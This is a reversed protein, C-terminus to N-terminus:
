KHNQSRLFNEFERQSILWTGKPKSGKLSGETLYRRVTKESWGTKATIDGVQLYTDSSEPQPKEVPPSDENRYGVPSEQLQPEPKPLPIKKEQVIRLWSQIPPKADFYTCYITQETLNLSVVDSLAHQFELFAKVLCVRLLHLAYGNCISETDGPSIGPKPPFGTLCHNHIKENLRKMCSILHKDLILDRYYARIPPSEEKSLIGTMENCYGWTESLILRRYYHQKLHQAPPFHIHYRGDDRNEGCILQTLREEYGAGAAMDPLTPDLASHLIEEFLPFRYDFDM